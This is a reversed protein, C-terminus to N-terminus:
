HSSHHPEARVGGEDGYETGLGTNKQTNAATLVDAECISCSFGNIHNTAGYLLTVHGHISACPLTCKCLLAHSTVLVVWGM